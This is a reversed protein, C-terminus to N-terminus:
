QYRQKDVETRYEEYFRLSLSQLHKFLKSRIDLLTRMTTYTMLYNSIYFCITRGSFLLFMGVCLLAFLHYDANPIVRDIAIKLMWPMALGLSSFIFLSVISGLLLFRYPKIMRIFSFQSM